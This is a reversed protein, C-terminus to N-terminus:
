DASKEALGGSTSVYFIVSPRGFRVSSRCLYGDLCQLGAVYPAHAIKPMVDRDLM